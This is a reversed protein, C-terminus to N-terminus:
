VGLLKYVTLSFLLTALAPVYSGKVVGLISICTLIILFVVGIKEVKKKFKKDLKMCVVWGDLLELPYTLVEFIFKSLNNCMEVVMSHEMVDAEHKVGSAMEVAKSSIGKGMKSLHEATREKQTQQKQQPQSDKTNGHQDSKKNDKKNIAAKDPATAAQQQNNKKDTISRIKEELTAM